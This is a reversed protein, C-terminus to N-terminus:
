EEDKVNINEFYRVANFSTYGFLGYLNADDGSTEIRDVLEHIAKDATYTNDIERRLSTGDPYNITAKGHAIAVSAMPNIGIFSRSNNSEHYDSSEMLVSQPYRDRLRMYARVPTHLDALITRSKTQYKFNEM